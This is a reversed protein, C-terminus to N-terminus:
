NCIDACVTYTVTYVFTEDELLASEKQALLEADPFAAALAQRSQMRALALAQEETRFITQPHQEYYTTEEISCPFALGWLEPQIHRTVICSNEPAVPAPLDLCNGLVTLRLSCQQQGTLRLVEEELPIKQTVEWEFRARVSGAAPSFILTGDRESRATGILGDGEQIEQGPTVLMTGSVLNTEVVTGSCKARLGKLSGAAIEPKPAAPAAEIELRGKAFNVSAWSFEGSKLLAYEAATLKEQTALAGPMLDAQRLVAAARAAQGTSLASDDVAWVFGQMWVILPLFVALGCWIGIRRLFPRLRFFLGLRKQLRLKVRQRRALASLPRYQWAACRASFGGPLPLISFLHLGNQAASTLLNETNGNQASFQVAAWYRIPEM